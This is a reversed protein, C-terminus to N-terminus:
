RTDGCLTRPGPSISTAPMFSRAAGGSWWRLAAQTSYSKRRWPSSSITRSLFGRAMRLERCRRKSARPFSEACRVSSGTWPSGSSSADFGGAPSSTLLRNFEAYLSRIEPRLLVGYQLGVEYPPGSVELLPTGDMDVRRGSHFVLADATKHPERDPVPPAGVCSSILLAAFLALAVRVVAKEFVAVRDKKPTAPIMKNRGEVGAPQFGAWLILRKLLPKLENCGQQEQLTRRPGICGNRRDEQGGLKEGSTKSMDGEEVPLDSSAVFRQGVPYDFICHAVRM